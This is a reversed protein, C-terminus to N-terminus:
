PTAERDDLLVRMRQELRVREEELWELHRVVAEGRGCCNLGFHPALAVHERHEMARKEVAALADQVRRLEYEAARRCGKSCYSAPRGAGARGALAAGCKRCGPVGASQLKEV